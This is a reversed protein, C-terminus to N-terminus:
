CKMAKVHYVILLILVMVLKVPHTAFKVLLLKIIEMKSIIIFFNIKNKSYNITNFNILKVFDQEM